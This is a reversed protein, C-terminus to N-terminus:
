VLNNNYIKFARLAMGQAFPMVDLRQSFIGFDVTDGQCYDLAGDRRTM